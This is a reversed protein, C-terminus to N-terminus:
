CTFGRIEECNEGYFDAGDNIKGINEDYISFQLIKDFNESKNKYIFLFRGAYCAPQVM